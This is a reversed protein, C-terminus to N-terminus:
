PCAEPVPQCRATAVRCGGSRLVWLMSISLKTRVNCHIAASRAHPLTHVSFARETGARRRAREDRRLSRPRRGPEFFGAVHFGRVKSVV